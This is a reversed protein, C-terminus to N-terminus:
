HKVDKYLKKLITNIGSSYNNVFSFNSKAKYAAEENAKHDYGKNEQIEIILQNQLNKSDNKDLMIAKPSHDLVEKFTPLDSYIIKLESHSLVL